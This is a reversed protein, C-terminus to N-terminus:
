RIFSMRHVGGISLDKRREMECLAKESELYRRYEAAKEDYAAIEKSKYIRKIKPISSLELNSMIQQKQTCEM